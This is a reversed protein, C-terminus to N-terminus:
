NEYPSQTDIRETRGSKPQRRPKQKGIKDLKIVLKQTETFRLQEAYPQYGKATIALEHPADDRAVELAGGTVRKGDITM